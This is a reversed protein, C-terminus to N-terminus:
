DLKAMGVTEREDLEENCFTFEGGIVVSESIEIGHEGMGDERGEKAEGSDETEKDEDELGDKGEGWGVCLV